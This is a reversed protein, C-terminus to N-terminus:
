SILIHIFFILVQYQISVQFEKSKRRTVFNRWEEEPIRYKIPPVDLATPNAELLKPDNLYPAIFRKNLFTKFTRWKIGVSSMVEKRM